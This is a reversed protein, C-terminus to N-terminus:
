TFIWFRLLLYVSSLGLSLLTIPAGYKFFRAFSIPAGNKKSIGATVVNASAGVLTGNGGLCAGLSLAWWLPVVAEAGLELSMHQLLPIMTAVLPINDVFASLLGAFWLIFLATFLPNGASVSVLTQALLEIVGVHVLGEVMIFLGIFFFITSWEIEHFVEDIHHPDTLLILIFAGAVAFISPDIGFQEHFMMGVIVLFLVALCKILLPKDNLSRKEDFELIRAKRENSVKMKKRYRVYLLGTLIALLILVFPGNFQIFDLFSFRAASAIMINPPDGILTATGGINSSIAMIILFPEAPIGLEVALLFAVPVLILVTTVNDLIASFFATILALLILIYVPEGRALRAAKIAVYQFIGSKKSIGVIIMMGLLLFVVNWDVYSFVNEGELAHLFVFVCAGLMATVTKNIKETSILVFAGTFVLVSIWMLATMAKM